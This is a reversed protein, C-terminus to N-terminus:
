FAYGCLGSERGIGSKSAIFIREDSDTASKFEFDKYAGIFEFDTDELMKKVSRLTYM